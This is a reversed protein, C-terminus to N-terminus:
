FIARNKLLSLFMPYLPSDFKFKYIDYKKISERQTAKSARRVESIQNITDGDV